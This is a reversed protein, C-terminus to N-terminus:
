KLRWVPNKENDDNYKLQIYSRNLMLSSPVEYLLAGGTKENRGIGESKYSISAAQVPYDIEEPFYTSGDYKLEFNSPYPSIIIENGAYNTVELIVIMFKKDASPGVTQYKVPTQITYSDWLSVRKIQISVDNKTAYSQNPYLEPSYRLNNLTNEIHYASNLPLADPYPDNYLTPVVLAAATTFSPTTVNQFNASSTQTIETSVPTLFAISLIASVVVLLIAGGCFLIIWELTSRKKTAKGPILPETNQSTDQQPASVSQDKQIPSLDPLKLGCNPCFKFNEDAVPKGCGPCVDAM